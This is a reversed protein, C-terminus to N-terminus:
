ASKRLGCCRTRRSKVPKNPTEEENVAESCTLSPDSPGEVPPVQGQSLSNSTIQPVNSKQLTSTDALEKEPRHVDRTATVSPQSLELLCRELGDIRDKMEEIVIYAENKDAALGPLQVLLTQLKGVVHVQDTAVLLWDVLVKLAGPLLGSEAQTHLHEDVLLLQVSALTNPDVLSYEFHELADVLQTYERLLRQFYQWSCEPFGALSCVATGVKRVLLTKEGLLDMCQTVTFGAGLAGIRVTLAKTRRLYQICTREAAALREEAGAYQLQLDDLESRSQWLSIEADEVEEAHHQVIQERPLSEM